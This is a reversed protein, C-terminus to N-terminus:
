AELEVIVCKLDLAKGEHFLTAHINGSSAAGCAQIINPHSHTYKLSLRMPSASCNYMEGYGAAM